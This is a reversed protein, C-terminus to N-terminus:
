QINSGVVACIILRQLLRYMMAMGSAALIRLLGFLLRDRALPSIAWLIKRM